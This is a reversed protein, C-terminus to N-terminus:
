TANEPLREATGDSFIKLHSYLNIYQFWITM